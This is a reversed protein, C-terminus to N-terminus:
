TIGGEIVIDGAVVGMEIVTGGMGKARRGLQERMAFRQRMM